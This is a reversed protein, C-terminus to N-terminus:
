AHPVTGLLKRLEAIRELDGHRSQLSDGKYGSSYAWEDLAESLAAQLQAITAADADAQQRRSAAEQQGHIRGLEFIYARIGKKSRKEAEEVKTNAAKEAIQCRRNLRTITEKAAAKETELVELIEFEIQGSSKKGSCASEAIERARIAARRDAADPPHPDTM